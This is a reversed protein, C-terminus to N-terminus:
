GESGGLESELVRIRAQIYDRAERDLGENELAREYAALAAEPDDLEEQALGLGLWWGARDPQEDVVAQYHEAARAPQEDRYLAGALQARTEIGEDVEPWAEELSEVARAYEQRALWLRGRDRVLPGPDAAADFGEALLRDAREPRGREAELEALARRADVHDPRYELVRQLQGGAAGTEGRSLHRRAEAWAEDAREADSPERRERLMEGAEALIEEAEEVVPEINSDPEGRDAEAATAEAGSAPDDPTQLDASSETIPDSDPDIEPAEALTEHLVLEIEEGAEAAALLPGPVYAEDLELRLRAGEEGSALEWDHVASPPEPDAHELEEVDFSLAFAEAGADEQRPVVADDFSLRLRSGAGTEVREIRELRVPDPARAQESPTYSILPTMLDPGDETGAFDTADDSAREWYLWGALGAVLVPALLSILILPRRGPRRQVARVRAGARRNQEQSELDRLMRNVLSM